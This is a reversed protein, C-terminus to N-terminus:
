EAPTATPRDTDQNHTANQTEEKAPPQKQGLNALQAIVQDRTPTNGDPTLQPPKTFDITFTARVGEPTVTIEYSDVDPFREAAAHLDLIAQRDLKIKHEPRHDDQRFTPKM